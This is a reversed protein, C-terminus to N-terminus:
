DCPCQPRGLFVFIMFQIHIYFHFDTLHALLTSLLESRYYTLQSFTLSSHRINSKKDVFCFSLPSVAVLRLSISTINMLIWANFNLLFAHYVGTPTTLFSPDSCIRRSVHPCSRSGESPEGIVLLPYSWRELIPSSLM